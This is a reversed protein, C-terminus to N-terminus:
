SKGKGFWGKKQSPSAKNEPINSVTQYRGNYLITPECSLPTKQSIQKNLDDVQKRLRRTVFKSHMLSAGTVLSGSVFGIMLLGLSLVSVPMTVEADFPWFSLSVQMRNQLVFVIVAAFVPLTLVWTLLRM